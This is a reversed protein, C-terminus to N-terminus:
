ECGGAYKPYVDLANFICKTLSASSLNPACSFVFRGVITQIMPPAKLSIAGNFNAGSNAYRAFSPYWTTSISYRTEFSATNGAATWSAFAAIRNKLACASLYPISSFLIATIPSEAPPYKAAITPAVAPIFSNSVSSHSPYSLLTRATM